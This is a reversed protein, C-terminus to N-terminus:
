ADPVSPPGEKNLGSLGYQAMLGKIASAPLMKRLQAIDEDNEDSSAFIATNVEMFDKVPQIAMKIFNLIFILAFIIMVFAVWFLIDLISAAPVVRQIAPLVYVKLLDIPKLEKMKAILDRVEPFLDGFINLAALQAKLAVIISSLGKQLALIVNNFAQNLGLIAANIVQRIVDLSQNVATIVHSMGDTFTRCINIKDIGAERLKQALNFGCSWNENFNVQLDPKDIRQISIGPIKNIEGLTANVADITGYIPVKVQNVIQNLTGVAQRVTQEFFKCPDLTKDFVGVDITCDWPPINPISFPQIAPINLNIEFKLSSIKKILADIEELPPKFVDAVKKAAKAVEEAKQKVGAIRAVVEKFEACTKTGYGTGPTCRVFAGDSECAICPVTIQMNSYLYIALSTIFFFVILRISASATGM